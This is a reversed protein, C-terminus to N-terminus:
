NKHFIEALMCRASGGGVTEITEIPAHVIEGCLALQARQTDSFANFATDSMVIATRGDKSVLELINGCMHNVQDLTIYIITKGSETLMDVVRSAQQQDTICDTCIVAFQKGVSMLVNTHYILVGKEDTSSFPVLEYGLEQSFARLVELNTRPSLSAYCIKNERDLVMSGTGELAKQETEFTTLDVVRDININHEMLAGKLAEEQREAQRNANYMPYLVLITEGDITHVSFWNNPFVADPTQVDTRSQLTIVQIGKSEIQNKLRQFDSLADQAINDREVQHQFTNTSGTQYNFSFHDPSIMVITDTNQAEHAMLAGFLLCGLTIVFKKM